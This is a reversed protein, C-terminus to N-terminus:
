FCLNFRKMHPMLQHDKYERRIPGWYGIKGSATEGISLQRKMMIDISCRAQGEVTGINSCAAGRSRRVNRDREMAWLGYGERPNLVIAKGNRTYSTGHHASVNCSAEEQALATWFWAWAMLKEHHSLDNFKPCYSGLANSQTYYKEYKPESMINVLSRGGSGLQGNKDVLMSCRPAMARSTPPKIKISEAATAALACAQCTETSQNAVGQSDNILGIVAEADTSKSTKHSASGGSSGETGSPVSSAKRATGLGSVPKTTEAVQAQRPDDVKKLAVKKGDKAWAALKSDRGASDGGFSYLNMTQNGKNTGKRYYVWICDQGTQFDDSNKVELCVGSNGNAFTYVKKVVARTGAKLYYTVNHDSSRFYHDSRGNLELKQLQDKLEILDGNQPTTFAVLQAALTLVGFFRLIKRVTTAPM